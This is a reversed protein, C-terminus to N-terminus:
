ALRRRLADLLLSAAWAPASRPPGAYTREQEGSGDPLDLRLYAQQRDPGPRLSLGISGQAGSRAQLDRMADALGGDPLALPLSLVALMAGGADALQSALRGGSGAEVACVTWQRLRLQRGVVQALSEEDSGYIEAALRSRLVTETENIMALAEAESEAKATIRIDVRGPHAALGVTPNPRTELDQIQDDIWSEGAGATRLLRSRIVGAGPYRDRLFPLVFAELLAQMEGPVGPLAIIVGSAQGLWFAPATGVPNEIAVAGQPLTAQRRNNETPTRGFQAFRHRIQQWLEPHFELPRQLARAIGERTADDVTPGLGGTTIVVQARRSAETVAAAIREPNDGVSSTRFLDLGISRLARGLSAANSDVIDGLLLETGITIIEATPSM